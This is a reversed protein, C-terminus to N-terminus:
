IYRATLGVQEDLLCDVGCFNRLAITSAGAPLTRIVVDRGGAVLHGCQLRKGRPMPVILCDQGNVKISTM